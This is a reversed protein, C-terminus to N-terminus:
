FRRWNESMIPCLLIDPPGGFFHKQINEFMSFFVINWKNSKHQKLSLVLPPFTNRIPVVCLLEYLFSFYFCVCACVCVLVNRRPPPTPTPPESISQRFYFKFFFSFLSSIYLSFQFNIEILNTWKSWHRRLMSCSPQTSIDWLFSFNGWVETKRLVM